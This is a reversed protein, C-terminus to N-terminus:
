FFPSLKLQFKNIKVILILKVEYKSNTTSSNSSNVESLHM